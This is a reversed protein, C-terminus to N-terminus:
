YAMSEAESDESFPPPSPPYVLTNPISTGFNLERSDDELDLEVGEDELDCNQDEGEEKEGISQPKLCDPDLNSLYFIDLVGELRSGRVDTDTESDTLEFTGIHTLTSQDWPAYDEESDSSDLTLDIIDISTLQVKPLSPKVDEDEITLDVFM